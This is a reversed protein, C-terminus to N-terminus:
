LICLGQWILFLYSLNLRTYLCYQEQRFPIISFITGWFLPKTLWSERFSIYIYQLTHYMNTWKYSTWHLFIDLFPSSISYIFCLLGPIAPFNYHQMRKNLWLSCLFLFLYKIYSNLNFGSLLGLSMNLINNRLGVWHFHLHSGWLHSQGGYKCRPAHSGDKEEWEQSETWRLYWKLHIFILVSWSISNHVSKLIISRVNGLSFKCEFM